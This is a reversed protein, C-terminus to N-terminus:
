KVEVEAGAAELASKISAAEEKTVVTKLGFVFEGEENFAKMVSKVSVGFLSATVTAVERKYSPHLPSIYFTFFYEKQVALMESTSTAQSTPTTFSALLMSLALLQITKM